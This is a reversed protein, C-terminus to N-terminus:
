RGSHNIKRNKREVMKDEQGNPPQDWGSRQRNSNTQLGAHKGGKDQGAQALETVDSDDAPTTASQAAECVQSRLFVSLSNQLPPSRLPGPYRPPAVIM